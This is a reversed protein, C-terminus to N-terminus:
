PHPVRQIFIAEGKAPFSELVGGEIWAHVYDDLKLDSFNIEGEEDVITAYNTSIYIQDEILITKNKVDIKKIKGSEFPEVKPIPPHGDTMEALPGEHIELFDLTGFYSEIEELNLDNKLTVNLNVKNKWVDIGAGWIPREGNLFREGQELLDTQAQELFQYSYTVREFHVLKEKAAGGKVREKSFETLTQAIEDVNAENTVQLVFRKEKNQDLYFGGFQDASLKEQIFTNLLISAEELDTAYIIATEEEPREPSQKVPIDMSDSSSIPKTGCATILLCAM